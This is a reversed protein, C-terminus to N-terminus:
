INQEAETFVTKKLKWFVDTFVAINDELLNHEERFVYDENNEIEQGTDLVKIFQAIHKLHEDTQKQFVKLQIDADEVRKTLEEQKSGAQNAYTSLIKKFFRIEDEYFALDNKWHETLKYLEQWTAEMMYNAKPRFRYEPQEM